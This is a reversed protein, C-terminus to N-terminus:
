PNAGFAVGLLLQAQPSPSILVTKPGQAGLQVEFRTESVTVDLAFSATLGWNRRWWWTIGANGGLALASGLAHGNVTDADRLSVRLQPGVRWALRAGRRGLGLTARFPAEWLRATGREKGADNSVTETVQPLLLQPELSAAFWSAFWLSAELGVVGTSPGIAFGAKPALQLAPALEPAPPSPKPAPPQTAPRAPPPAPREPRPEPEPEPEPEPTAAPAQLERFYRELVLAIAQVVTDCSEGGLPLRRELRVAGSGDKLVLQVYDGGGGPAHGITYSAVWRKEGELTLQGIRDHVARRTAALDPCLADPSGTEVSLEAPSDAARAAHSVACGALCVLLYDLSKLRM